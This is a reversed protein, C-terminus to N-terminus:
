PLRTLTLSDSGTTTVPSPFGPAMRTQITRGARWATLPCADGALYTYEAKGTGSATVTMQQPGAPITGSRGGSWAAALVRREKGESRVVRPAAYTSIVRESGTEDNQNTAWATTDVREGAKSDASGWHAFFFRTFRDLARTGPVLAPSTLAVVDGKPGIDGSWRSGAGGEADPLPSGDARTVALSDLSLDLHRAPTSDTLRVTLTGRSRFPITEHSLNHHMVQIRTIEGRYDMRYRCTLPARAPAAPVLAAAALVVTALRM